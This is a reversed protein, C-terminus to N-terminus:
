RSHKKHKEITFLEGLIKLNSAEVFKNDYSRQYKLDCTVYIRYEELNQEAENEVKM